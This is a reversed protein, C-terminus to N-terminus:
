AVETITIEIVELEIVEYIPLMNFERLLLTVINLITKCGHTSKTSRKREPPLDRRARPCPSCVPPAYHKEKTNNPAHVYILLIKSRNASQAVEKQLLKYCRLALVYVFIRRRVCLLFWVMCQPYTQPNKQPYTALNFAPRRALPNAHTAVFVGWIPGACAYRRTQM